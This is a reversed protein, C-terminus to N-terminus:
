KARVNKAVNHGASALGGMAVGDITVTTPDFMGPVGLKSGLYAFGIGLGMNLFPLVWTPVAPAVKTKVLHTVVNVVPFFLVGYDM